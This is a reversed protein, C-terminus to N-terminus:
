RLNVLTQLIADQTKISQANAQYNRQQIIMQVLEQTLEVNSEEITSSTILGNLGEGPANEFAPGSETTAEWLNNGLSNLGNENRFTALAVRGLNYTQGNTYSGVILGSQDVSLSALEGARRGDQGIDNILYTGGTQRMGTFDLMIMLPAADPTLTSEVNWTATAGFSTDLTGSTTFHLSLMPSADPRNGDLSPYVDWTNIAPDAQKVFYFTIEHSKGLSDFGQISTSRNYTRADRWDTGTPFPDLLPYADRPSIEEADLNGEVTVRTTAEPASGVNPIQLEKLGGIENPLGTGIDPISQYGILRDGTSTIIYGNKDLDFQGNRTYANPGSERSIMFFGNGNIALDLPNNTTTLNGQAFTQRVATMSSGAGVQKDSVTGSLSAAYVDAFVASGTKFGATNTNAVNNSIIDLARSSVNLGSLGQQFSM